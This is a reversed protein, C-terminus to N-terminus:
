FEGPRLVEGRALMRRARDALARARDPLLMRAIGLLDSGGVLRSLADHEAQILAAAGDRHRAAVLDSHNLIQGPLAFAYGHDILTLRRGDWRWNGPHRDQQAILSDFLAAPLWWIPSQTPTLDGPWGSAQLSLAGDDGAYDRLVCPAVLDQWPPGLAVALRWGVADHLPPTEATQGYALANAVHVGSFPKHFAVLSGALALRKTANVGPSSTPAPPGVFAESLMRQEVPLAGQAAKVAAIQPDIIVLWTHQDPLVRRPAGADAGVSDLGAFCRQHV